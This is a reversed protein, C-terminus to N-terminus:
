LTTTNCEQTSSYVRPILISQFSYEDLSTGFSNHTLKKLHKARNACTQLGNSKYKFRYWNQPDWLLSVLREPQMRRQHTLHLMHVPCNATIFLWLPTFYSSHFPRRSSHGRATNVHEAWQRSTIATLHPQSPLHPATLLASPAHRRWAAGSVGDWRM